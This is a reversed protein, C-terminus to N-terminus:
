GISKGSAHGIYEQSSVFPTVVHRFAAGFRAGFDRFCQRSSLERWLVARVDACTQRPRVIRIPRASSVDIRIVPINPKVHWFVRQGLWVAVNAFVSKDHAFVKAPYEIRGLNNVVDVAVPRVVPDFVKFQHRLGLVHAKLVGATLATILRSRSHRLRLAAEFLFGCAGLRPGVYGLGLLRSTRSLTTLQSM